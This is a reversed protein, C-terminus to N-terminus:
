SLAQFKKSLRSKKRAVTNPHLIGKGAATDMLKQVQQLAAESAEKDKKEIGSTFKKVANRIESKVQRNRMRRVLSQRYRKEASKKNAM